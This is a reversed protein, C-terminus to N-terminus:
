KKPYAPSKHKKQIYDFKPAKSNINSRKQDTQLRAPSWRDDASICTEIESEIIRAEKLGYDDNRSHRLDISRKSIYAYTM